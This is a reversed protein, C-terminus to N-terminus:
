IWRLTFLLADQRLEFFIHYNYLHYQGSCKENIWRYVGPQSNVDFQIKTFDGADMDTYRPKLPM